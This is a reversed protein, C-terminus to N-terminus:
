EVGLFANQMVVFKYIKNKITAEYIGFIKALTSLEGKERKMRM